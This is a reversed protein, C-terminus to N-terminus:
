NTASSEVKKGGGIVSATHWASLSLGGFFLACLFGFAVLAFTNGAAYAKLSLFVFFTLLGVYMSTASLWEIITRNRSPATFSVTLWGITVISAAAIWTIQFGNLDM